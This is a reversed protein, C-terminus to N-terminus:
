HFTRVLLCTFALFITLLSIMTQILVFRFVTQGDKWEAIKRAHDHLPTRINKMVQKKTLKILLIKVLGIGGDAFFVACFLLFLTPRGSRLTTIALYLGIARSGADGMLMTSPSANYWLYPILVLMFLFIDGSYIGISMYNSLLLFSALSVLTLFGCLGDVGDTCNVVNISVFILLIACLVFLVKPMTFTVDFFLLSVKSGNVVVYTIAVVAAIALDLVGKLVRGWPKDSADDFFGTLMSATIAFLYIGHEWSLRLFLLALVAYVLIFVIGAGRAKGISKEGNVAFARGMDQPLKNRFVKLLVWSLVLGLICGITTLVMQMSVSLDFLLDFMVFGGFLSVLPCFGEYSIM